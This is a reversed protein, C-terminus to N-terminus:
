PQRAHKTKPPSAAENEEATNPNTGFTVQATMARTALPKNFPVMPMTLDCTECIVSAVFRGVAKESKGTPKPMPM